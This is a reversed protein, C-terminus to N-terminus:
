DSNCMVDTIMDGVRETATEYDEGYLEMAVAIILGSAGAQKWDHREPHTPILRSAAVYRSIMFHLVQLGTM